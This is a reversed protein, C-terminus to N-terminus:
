SIGTRDRFYGPPVHCLRLRSPPLDPSSREPTGSARKIHKPSSTLQVVDAVRSSGCIYIKDHSRTSQDLRQHPFIRFSPPLLAGLFLSFLKDSIYTFFGLSLLITPIM